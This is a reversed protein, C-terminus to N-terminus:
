QAGGQYLATVELQFRPPPAQGRPPLNAAQTAETEREVRADTFDGSTELQHVFDIAPQLTNSAFRLDVANAGNRVLPRLSLLEVGPPTIKELREFLLTWSVSKRDILRNFFDAQALENRVGPDRLPAAARDQEALLPATRARMADAQAQIPRSGLWGTLAVAALVIFALVLLALSGGWVIKLRRLNEAPRRALNITTRIM